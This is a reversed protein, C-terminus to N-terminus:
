LKKKNFLTTKIYFTILNRPFIKRFVQITYQKPIYIATIIISYMKLLM